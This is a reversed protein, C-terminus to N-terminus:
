FIMPSCAVVSTWFAIKFRTGFSEFPGFAFIQADNGYTPLIDSLPAILFQGILPAAAYFVCVAIFLTVLIRIIRVRLEGVHKMFPMKKEDITM